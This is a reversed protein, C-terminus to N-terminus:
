AGEEADAKPDAAADATGAAGADATGDVVPLAMLEISDAIRSALLDSLRRLAETKHTRTTEVDASALYVETETLMTADLPMAIGSARIIEVDLAMTVSYELAAAYSSFSRSRVILPRVRGQLVLDADKPDNVLALSGRADMERRLADTLIRDIWPELSDNRIAM